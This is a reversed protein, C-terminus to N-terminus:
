VPVFFNYINKICGNATAVFIYPIYSYFKLVKNFSIFFRFSDSSLWTWTYFSDTKDLHGNKGMNIPYKLAIGILNEITNRMSYWLSIKFKYPYAFILFLWPLKSSFCIALSMFGYYNKFPTIITSSCVFLDIFCFLSRM